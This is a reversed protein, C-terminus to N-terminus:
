PCGGVGCADRNTGHHKKVPREFDNGCFSCYRHVVLEALPIIIQKGCRHCNFTYTPENILEDLELDILPSDCVINNRTYELAHNGCTKNGGIMEGIASGATDMRNTYM